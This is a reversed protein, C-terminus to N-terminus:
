LKAFRASLFAIRFMLAKGELPFSWHLQNSYMLTFYKQTDSFMLSLILLLHLLPSFMELIFSVPILDQNYLLSKYVLVLYVSRYSSISFSSYTVFTLFLSNDAFM